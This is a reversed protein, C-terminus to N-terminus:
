MATKVQCLIIMFWINKCQFSRIETKLCDKHTKKKKKVTNQQKM